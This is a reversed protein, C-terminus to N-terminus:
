LASTYEIEITGDAGAVFYFPAAALDYVVEPSRVRFYTWGPTDPLPGPHSCLAIHWADWYKPDDEMRQLAERCSPCTLDLVLFLTRQGHPIDIPSGDADYVAPLTLQTGKRNTTCATRMREYKDLINSDLVQEQLIKDATYTFLDCNRCPSLFHYFAGIFWEAYVYYAVEDENLRLFLSDIAAKAKEEPAAVALEAFDALRDESNQINEELLPIGNWFSTIDTQSKEGSCKCGSLLALCFIATLLYQQTRYM